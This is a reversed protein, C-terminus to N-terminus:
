KKTKIIEFEPAYKFTAIQEFSDSFGAPLMLEDKTNLDWEWLIRGSKEDDFLFVLIGDYLNIIWGKGMKNLEIWRDVRRIEKLVTEQHMGPKNTVNSILLELYETYDM